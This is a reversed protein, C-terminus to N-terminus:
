FGQFDFPKYKRDEQLIEPYYMLIVVDPDYAEIYEPTIPSVDSDDQFKIERFGMMLYPNLAKGFSDTVILIKIDNECDLNIYHDNAADLVLDYTYRSTYQKNSLPEMNIVLDQMKGTIGSDNQITTEFDPLILDFDDIGAFYRGTRQGRSGLHWKEYTTITYNNIDSIREDVSCGTQAIIYDELIGYAYFGAKTNWHHDTKYMMSYHDIGNEHMIERFDITEVDLTNLMTIFRDVNYNGYDSVGTPIEPDYKGSTYPTAAYVLVTGRQKLYNNFSAVRDACNQLYEDSSYPIKTLLYGNNLKIVWNMERQGLLNRIAGNLNVFQFKQFFTTAVDTEFKDGLDVTWESYDVEGKVYFFIFNKLSICGIVVTLLIFVIAFAVSSIKKNM